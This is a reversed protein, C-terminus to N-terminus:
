DTTKNLQFPINDSSGQQSLAAFDSNTKPYSYESVDM